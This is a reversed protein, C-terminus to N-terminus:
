QSQDKNKSQKEPQPEWLWPPFGLPPSQLTLIPSLTVWWQRLWGRGRRDQPWIHGALYRLDLLFVFSTKSKKKDFRLIKIQTQTNEAFLSYRCLLCHVKFYRASQPATWLLRRFKKPRKQYGEGGYQFKSGSKDLKQRRIIQLM